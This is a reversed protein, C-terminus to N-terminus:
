FKNRFSMKDHTGNRRLIVMHAATSNKLRIKKGDFHNSYNTAARILLKEPLDAIKESCKVEIICQTSM